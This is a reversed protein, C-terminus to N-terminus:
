ARQKVDMVVNCGITRLCGRAHYIPDTRCDPQQTALTMKPARGLHSVTALQHDILIYDGILDPAIADPNYREFVARM